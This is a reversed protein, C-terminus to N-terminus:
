NWRVQDAPVVDISCKTGGVNGAASPAFGKTHREVVPASICTYAPPLMSAARRSRPALTSAEQSPLMQPAHSTRPEFALWDVSVSNERRFSAPGM